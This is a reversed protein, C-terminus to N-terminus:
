PRAEEAPANARDAGRQLEGELQKARERVNDLQRAPPAKGGEGDAVGTTLAYRAAFAVAALALVLLLIRMTSM